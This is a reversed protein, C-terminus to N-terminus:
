PKAIQIRIFVDRLDEQEYVAPDGPKGKRDWKVLRISGKDLEIATIGDTYCCCGDNFYCPSFIGTEEFIPVTKNKFEKKIRAQLENKKKNIDKIINKYTKTTKNFKSAKSIYDDLEMRLRDIKSLSGFMARHTHGAIFLLGKNKAWQYYMQEKMNRKKINRAAGTNRIFFLRQLPKWFKRVFFRGVPWLVDSFLEGQHGHTLFIDGDKGKLLLSEHIKIGPLVDKLHNEFFTENRWFIDHNGFIRYLKKKKAFKAELDNIASYKYHIDPFDCEWLEEYDGISIFTFGRNYYSTLAKEYAKSNLQFDDSGKKGDGLHQDSMIVYRIKDFDLRVVKAEKLANDLAKTM